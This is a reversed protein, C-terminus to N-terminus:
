NMPSLRRSLRGRAKSSNSTRRRFRRRRRIRRSTSDDLMGLDLVEIDRHNGRIQIVDVEEPAAGIARLLAAMFALSLQNDLSTGLWIVIRRAAVLAGTDGLLEAPEEHAALDPASEWFRLRRTRWVAPDALPELQGCSLRDTMVFVGDNPRLATAAAANFGPLVHVVRSM